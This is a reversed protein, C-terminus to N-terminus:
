SKRTVKRHIGMVNHELIEAIAIKIAEAQDATSLNPSTRAVRSLLGCTNYGKSSDYDLWQDFETFPDYPNDITTLMAANTADTQDKIEPM